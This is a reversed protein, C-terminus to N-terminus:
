YISYYDNIDREIATRNDSKDSAYIVIEQQKGDYYSAREQGIRFNGFVDNAQQGTAATGGNVALESNTGNILAYILSNQDPSGSVSMTDYNNYLDYDGQTRIFQTLGSSAGFIPHSGSAADAVAVAFATKVDVTGVPLNDNSGDFEIASKGGETVLGDLGDYIKPQNAATTQTADNSNGSQDYWSQVHLDITPSTAYSLSVASTDNYEAFDSVGGTFTSFADLDTGAGNDHVFRVNRIYIKDGSALQQNLTSSGDGGVYIAIAGHNSTTSNTKTVTVWKGQAIPSGSVAAQVEGVGAHIAVSGTISDCDAYVDFTLTGTGANTVESYTKNVGVLADSDGYAGTVNLVLADAASKGFTTVANQELAGNSDFGVDFANVITGQAGGSILQWNSTDYDVSFSSGEGRIDRMFIQDGAIPIYSSDNPYFEIQQSDVSVSSFQVKTWQRNALNVNQTFGQNSSTTYGYRITWRQTSGDPLAQADFYVECSFRGTETSSLAQPPVRKMGGNYGLEGGALIMGIVGSEPTIAVAAGSYDSNLNRLSYAAEAGPFTDLLENALTGEDCILSSGLGLM